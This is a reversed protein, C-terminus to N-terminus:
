SVNSLDLSPLNGTSFFVNLFALPIADITDDQCYVTLNKQWGTTNSPDTAGYSNQGWYVALKPPTLPPPILM